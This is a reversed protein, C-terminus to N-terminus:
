LLQRVHYVTVDGSVGKLQLGTIPEAQVQDKVLDYTTQSIVVQGAKAIGCIRAGLNAANGIVTYNTRQASGMEGVILEGTAIGVGIPSPTVGQPEWEAMVAQHAEQMQLGVKVARLAHDPHPHPAGFFAMVEDGVFKDLTGENALIVEAMRGLYANIFGVLLDPPTHEALATSGRVDAYLVSIMTREGKLLAAPDPNQLLREMVSPDVSRGLVQRLKVKELGEFIATDIQSAIAILLGRDMDDFAHSGYRNVVGFVGLIDDQLIM